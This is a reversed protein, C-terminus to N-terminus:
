DETEEFEYDAEVAASHRPRDPNQEMSGKERLAGLYLQGLDVNINVGGASQGSRMEAMWKHWGAKDAMLKAQASTLGTDPKEGYMEFIEGAREAHAHASARRAEDYSEMDKRLERYIAWQAREDTRELGLAGAIERASLGGAVMEYLAERGGAEAVAAKLSRTLATSAFSGDETRELNDAPNHESDGAM